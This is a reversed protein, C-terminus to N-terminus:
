EPGVIWKVLRGAQLPTDVDVQNILALTAPSVPSPREGALAGITTRRDLTVIAVRQPQRNLAAPDTLPQFSGLAGEIASSNAQWRADPAYGLLRFVGGAHEVFRVTGRLLGDATQATFPASVMTLGHVSARTPTGGQIGEQALFASAAAAAGSEPAASLEVVADQEPSVALVAQRGNHTAWRGPFVFQFRMEPHLFRSGEFYGERPNTGFMQGDLRRLYSDRNVTTGSFDQPLAAIQATISAVRDGSSPHTALWEPIQSGGGAASVRGLTRFVEPMERPDYDARRLYRLGLEDAQNEDDRSFKLYMVGLAQNATAAYKAVESSAISGVILGAGLLQQKSM